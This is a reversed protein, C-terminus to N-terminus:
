RWSFCPSLVEKRGFRSFILFLIQLLSKQPEKIGFIEQRQPSVNGSPIVM